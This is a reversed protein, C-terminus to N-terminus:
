LKERDHNQLAEGSWYGPRTRVLLQPRNKVKLEISHFSGGEVLEPTFSILYRSNIESGLHILDNEMKRQTEFRLSQGGTAATLASTTNQKGLRATETIATKIWGGGNPPSYESAKTTFPTLYASYTLSDITV